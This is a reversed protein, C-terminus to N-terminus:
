IDRFKIFALDISLKVEENNAFKEESILRSLITSEEKDKVKDILKDFYEEIIETNPQLLLILSTTLNEIHTSMSKKVFSIPYYSYYEYM